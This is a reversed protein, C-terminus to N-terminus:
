QFTVENERFAKWGSDRAVKWASDLDPEEQIPHEGQERLQTQKGAVQSHIRQLNPYICKGSAINVADAGALRSGPCGVPQWEM